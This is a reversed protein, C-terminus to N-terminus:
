KEELNELPDPNNEAPKVRSRKRTNFEIPVAMNIILFLLLIAFNPYYFIVQVFLQMVNERPTSYSSILAVANFAFIAALVIDILVVIIKKKM